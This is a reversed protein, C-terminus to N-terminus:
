QNKKRKSAKTISQLNENEFKKKSYMLCMNFTFLTNDLECCSKKRAKM